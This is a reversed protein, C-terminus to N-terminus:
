RVLSANELIIDYFYGAGVDKNTTLVGEFTVVSGVEVKELTTITLDHQNKGDPNEKIHVWNKDMIANNVKVVHGKVQITKGAYMDKNSFLENLSVVGGKYQSEAPKKTGGCALLLSLLFLFLIRYM